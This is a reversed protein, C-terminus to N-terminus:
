KSQGFIRRAVYSMPSLVRIVYQDSMSARFRDSAFLGARERGVAEIKVQVEM